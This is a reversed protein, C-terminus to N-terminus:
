RGGLVVGLIIASAAAFGIAGGVTGSILKDKRIQKELRKMNLDFISDQKSIIIDKDLIVSDKLGLMVSDNYIVKELLQNETLSSEYKVVICNIDKLNNESIAVITDKDNIEMISPLTDEPTTFEGHKELNDSLLQVNSDIPLYKIKEIEKIIVKSEVTKISDMLCSNHEKVRELESNLSKIHAQELAVCSEQEFIRQELKCINDNMRYVLIALGLCSTILIGIVIYSLINKNKDNTEM